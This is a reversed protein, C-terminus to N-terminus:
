RAAGLVQLHEDIVAGRGAHRVPARRALERGGLDIQHRAVHLLRRRLRGLPAEGVHLLAPLHQDRRVLPRLLLLVRVVGVVDEGGRQAIGPFHRQDVAVRLLDDVDDLGAVRHVDRAGRSRLAVDVGDAAVPAQVQDVQPHRLRVVHGLDLDPEFGARDLGRAGLAVLVLEGDGAGVPRRLEHDHLAVRQLRQLDDAGAAHRHAVLFVVGLRADGRDDAAVVLGLEDDVHLLRALGQDDVVAVDGIQRDGLDLRRFVQVVAAEVRGLAVEHHRGVLRVLDRDDVGLVVLQDLQDVDVLDRMGPRPAFKTCGLNPGTQAVPCRPLSFIESM